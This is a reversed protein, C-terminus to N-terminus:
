LTGDVIFRAVDQNVQDIVAADFGKLYIRTTKESTHGLAESIVTISAGNEKALTAWSHRAVYSTLKIPLSLQVSLTKLNNNVRNLGNRYDSYPKTMDNIIPLLYESDSRYKNILDMLCPFVAVKIYQGTKHRCYEISGNSISSHKLLAIDIFSAGRMYFSFMFIDRALDLHPKDSLDVLTVLKMSKKDLARKITKRPALSLGCFPKNNLTIVREKLAQNYVTRLNRLYYAITNDSKKNSTLYETYQILLLPSIESFQMDVKGTFKQFSSLTSKYANGHKGSSQKRVILQNMYNFLSCPRDKKQYTFIIDEITYDIRTRILESEIKQLIKLEEKLRANLKRVKYESYQGGAIYIVKERMSDFEADRLNYSTYILRKRRQHIVQFVLPYTGDNHIRNKSLRIRITAM